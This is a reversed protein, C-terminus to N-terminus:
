KRKGDQGLFKKPFCNAVFSNFTATARRNSSAGSGELTGTGMRFSTNFDLFPIWKHSLFIRQDKQPCCLSQPGRRGAQRATDREQGQRKAWKRSGDACRGAQRM